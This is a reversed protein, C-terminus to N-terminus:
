FPGHCGLKVNMSVFRTGLVFRKSTKIKNQENKYCDKVNKIKIKKLSEDNDIHLGTATLKQMMENM